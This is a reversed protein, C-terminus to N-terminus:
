RSCDTGLLQTAAIEKPIADMWVNLGRPRLSTDYDVSRYDYGDYRISHRNHRPIDPSM